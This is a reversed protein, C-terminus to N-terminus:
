VFMMSIEVFGGLNDVQLIKSDREKKFARFLEGLSQYRM